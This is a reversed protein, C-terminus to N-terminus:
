EWCHLQKLQGSISVVCFYQSEQVSTLHAWYCVYSVEDPESKLDPFTIDGPIEEQKIDRDAEGHVAIFVEEIVDVDEVETNTLNCVGDSTANTQISSGPLIRLSDRCSQLVLTVNIHGGDHCPITYEKMLASLVAAAKYM